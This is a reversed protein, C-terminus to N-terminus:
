ERQVFINFIEYLEVIECNGEVETHISANLGNHGLFFHKASDSPLQGGCVFRAHFHVDVMLDLPSFYGNRYKCSINM